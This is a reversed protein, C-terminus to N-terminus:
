VVWKVHSNLFSLFFNQSTHMIVSRVEKLKECLELLGTIQTYFRATCESCIPKVPVDTIRYLFGEYVDEEKKGVKKKREKGGYVNNSIRPQM